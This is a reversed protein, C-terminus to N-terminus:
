SVIFRTQSIILALLFAFYTNLAHIFRACKSALHQQKHYDQNGNARLDSDDSTFQHPENKVGFYIGM